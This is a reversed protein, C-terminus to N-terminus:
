RGGGRCVRLRLRTGEATEKLLEIVVVGTSPETDGTEGFGATVTLVYGKSRTGFEVGFLKLEPGSPREVKTTKTLPSEESAEEYSEEIEETIANSLREYEEIGPPLPVDRLDRVDINLQHRTKMSIDVLQECEALLAVDYIGLPSREICHLASKKVLGDLVVTLHKKVGLKKLRENVKVVLTVDDAEKTELLERCTAPLVYCGLLFFRRHVLPKLCTTGVWENKGRPRKIVIDGYEVDKIPDWRLLTGDDTVPYKGSMSPEKLWGVVEDTDPTTRVVFPEVDSETADRYEVRYVQQKVDISFLVSSM